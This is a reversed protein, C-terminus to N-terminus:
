RSFIDLDCNLTSVQLADAQEALIRKTQLADAGEKWQDPQTQVRILQGPAWLAVMEVDGDDYEVKHRM